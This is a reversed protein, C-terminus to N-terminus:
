QTVVNQVFFVRREARDAIQRDLFDIAVYQEFVAAEFLEVFVLIWTGNIQQPAHAANVAKCFLVAVKDALIWDVLFAEFLYQWRGFVHVLFFLM